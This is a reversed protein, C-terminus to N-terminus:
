TQRFGSLAWIMSGGLILVALPVGVAIGAAQMVKKWPRIPTLAIGAKKYLGDSLQDDTLDKYESYQARFKPMEYWCRGDGEKSYDSSLSGRADSCDVPVLLIDGRGWSKRESAKEFEERISGSSVIGVVLICLCAFIIWLRFLGRRVNIRM